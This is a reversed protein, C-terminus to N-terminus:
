LTKHNTVSEVSNDHSTQCGLMEMPRKQAPLMKHRDHCIPYFFLSMFPPPPHQLLRSLPIFPPRGSKVDSISTNWISNSLHWVFYLFHVRLCCICISWNGTYLETPGGQLDMFPRVDMQNSPLFNGDHHNGKESGRKCAEREGQWGKLVLLRHSMSSLFPTLLLWISTSDYICAKGGSPNTVMYTQSRWLVFAYHIARALTNVGKRRPIKDAQRHNVGKGPPIGGAQPPPNANWGFSFCDSIVFNRGSDLGEFIHISDERRCPWMDYM